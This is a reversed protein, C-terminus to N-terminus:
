ACSIPTLLQVVESDNAQSKAVAASDERGELTLGKLSNPPPKLSFLLLQSYPPTPLTPVTEPPTLPLALLVKVCYNCVQARLTLHLLAPRLPDFRYVGNVGCGGPRVFAEAVLHFFAVGSFLTHVFDYM